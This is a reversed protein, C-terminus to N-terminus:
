KADATIEKKEIGQAIKFDDLLQQWEPVHQTLHAQILTDTLPSFAPIEINSDDLCLLALVELNASKNGIEVARTELQTGPM